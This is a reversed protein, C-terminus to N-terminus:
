EGQQRGDQLRPLLSLLRAEGTYYLATSRPPLVVEIRDTDQGVLRDGFLDWVMEVKGPLRFLRPGGAVTHVALLQPTAYLVDGEESYLHAGAFRALGRLLPAPVNPAAIYVSTWEPFVKVGMGPKCRGESYVVQGLIRAAPDELHFVPEVREYIM